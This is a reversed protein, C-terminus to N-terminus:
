GGRKTLKTIEGLIGKSNGRKGKPTLKKANGLTGPSLSEALGIVQVALEQIGGETQGALYEEMVFKGDNIINHLTSVDLVPLTAKIPLKIFRPYEDEKYKGGKAFRNLVLYAKSAKEDILQYKIMLDLGARTPQIAPITPSSVVYLRTCEKLAAAHTHAGIMSGPDFILFEYEHMAADKLARIFRSAQKGGEDSFASLNAQDPMALGFLIDLNSDSSKGFAPPYNYVYDKLAPMRGTKYYVTALSAINTGKGTETSKSNTKKGGAFELTEEGLAAAIYGRSMDVDALLVRRGSINALAYALEMALLSKGDGGKSSWTTIVQLVQRVVGLSEQRPPLQRETVEEPQSLTKAMTNAAKTLLEGYSEDIRQIMDQRVPLKFVTAGAERAADFMDGFDDVLAVAVRASAGPQYTIKQLRRLNFGETDQHVFVLTAQSDIVFDLNSEDNMDQFTRLVQYANQQAEDLLRTIQQSEVSPGFIITEIIEPM